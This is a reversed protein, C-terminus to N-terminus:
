DSEKRLEIFPLTRMKCETAVNIFILHHCAQM